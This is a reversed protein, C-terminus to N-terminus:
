RGCRQSVAAPDAEAFRLGDAAIADILASFIPKHFPYLAYWYLTGLLGRPAFLAKQVLRTGDREPFTEWQLWAHGPVLMEARLRLLRPPAVAEVRWFDITEGPNIETPHRRGRRLGPGGLAKDLWGRVRWAWNWALWGRQGGISAFSRFVAAPPAAVFRSREEQVIGEWDTLRYTPGEGLAGSWSTEVQSRRVKGMALAIAREYPIPVIGPFLERARTTDALVPHVVSMVLPAALHYPLPTILGTLYSAQRPTPLLSPIFRRDLENTFAIEELMGRFTLRNTGVELIGLPPRGLVGVLYSLVDRVAVPQIAHNLWSPAPIVPLREVLYRMLEFSASGSGIIPGARVETANGATRLIQGVEVRSALHESVHDAEPVLGGLYVVHRVRHAAATFNRAARRDREAFGPGETMSHVLYYAADIGAFVQELGAPDLLDGFMVSVQKIWPHRPLRRPDRVLIRVRHGQELLLPVLRGGIYGTAGTVLVRM